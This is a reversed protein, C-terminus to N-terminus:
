LLPDMPCIWDSTFQSTGLEQSQSEYGYRLISDMAAYKVTSSKVLKGTEGEMLHIRWFMPNITNRGTM